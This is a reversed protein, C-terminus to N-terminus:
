PWLMHAAIVCLFVAFYKKLKDPPIRHSLKAGWPAMLVGGVALGIFAPWYVFGTSWQPLGSVDWGSFMFTMTGFVSVTMAIAISVVVAV